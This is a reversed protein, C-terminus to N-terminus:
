RFESCKQLELILLQSQPFCSSRDVDANFSQRNVALIGGVLTFLREIEASSVLIVNANMYTDSAECLRRKRNKVIEAM